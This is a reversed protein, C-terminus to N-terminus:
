HSSRVAVDQDNRGLSIALAIFLWYNTTNKTAFSNYTSFMLLIVILGVTAAGAFRHRRITKTVYQAAVIILWGCLYLFAPIIGVDLSLMLWPNEFGVTFASTATLPLFAASYQLSAGFNGVGWLHDRVLGISLLASQVRVALSLLAATSFFREGLFEPNTVIPMLLILAVGISVAIVLGRQEGRLSLLLLGVFAAVLAGRSWSALLGGAFVSGLFLLLLGRRSNGRGALAGAALMLALLFVTADTLPHGLTSTARFFPGRTLEQYWQVTRAAAYWSGYPWQSGFAWELIAIIAPVSMLALAWSTVIRAGRRQIAVLLLLLLAGPGIYVDLLHALSSRPSVPVTRVGMLLIALAVLCLGYREWRVLNRWTYRATALVENRRILLAIMAVWTAPHILFFSPEGGGQSGDLFSTLYPPIFLLLVAITVLAAEISVTSAVLGLLSIGLFYRFETNYLAGVMTLSLM